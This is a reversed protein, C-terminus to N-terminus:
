MVVNIMGNFGNEINKIEINRFNEEEKDTVIIFNDERLGYMGWIASDEKAVTVMIRTSKPNNKRVLDYIEGFLM